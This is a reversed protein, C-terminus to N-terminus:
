TPTDAFPYAAVQFHDEYVIYGPRPTRIVHVAIDYSELLQSLDRVQRLHYHSTDKFWSLAQAKAHPRRSVALREPRELHESFWGTIRRLRALDYEAIDASDRLLFAAQFVGRRRGSSAHVESTVFRLFMIAPLQTEQINQELAVTDVSRSATM